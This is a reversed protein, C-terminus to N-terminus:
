DILERISEAEVSWRQRDSKREVIVHTSPFLCCIGVVEIVDGDRDFYTKGILERHNPLPKGTRVDIEVWNIFKKQAM